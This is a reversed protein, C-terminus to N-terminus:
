KKKFNRESVHSEWLTEFPGAKWSFIIAEYFELNHVCGISSCWVTLSVSYIASFFTIFFSKKKITHMESGDPALGLLEGSHDTTLQVQRRTKHIAAPYKTRKAYKLVSVREDEVWKGNDARRLVPNEKEGDKEYHVPGFASTQSNEDLKMSIEWLALRTPRLGIRRSSWPEVRFFYNNDCESMHLTVAISKGININGIGLVSAAWQLLNVVQPPTVSAKQIYKIASRTPIKLKLKFFFNM